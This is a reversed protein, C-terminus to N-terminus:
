AASEETAIHRPELAERWCAKQFITMAREPQGDRGALFGGHNLERDCLARAWAKPDKAGIAIGGLREVAAKAVEPDAKPASLAKVYVPARNCVEAFQSVTPPQHPLNDLAFSLADPNGEHGALERAWDHKVGIMDLGEWRRLFDHGYRVTCRDFIRDVWSLPLSM